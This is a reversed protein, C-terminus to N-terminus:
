IGIVYFILNFVEEIALSAIIVFMLLVATRKVFLPLHLPEDFTGGQNTHAVYYAILLLVVLGLVGRVVIEYKSVASALWVGLLAFLITTSYYLIKIGTPKNKKM